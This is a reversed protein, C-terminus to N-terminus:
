PPEDYLRSSGSHRSGRCNRRAGNGGGTETHSPSAIVAPAPTEGSTSQAVRLSAPASLNAQLAEILAGDDGEPQKATNALWALIFKVRDVATLILTVTEPTAPAGDRLRGILSETIHTLLELRSLGLFGCTGKITHFLRFIRGIAGSNSPDREFLVLQEGAAEIHETTEVLFDNLLEDM